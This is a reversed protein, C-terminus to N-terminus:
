KAQFHHRGDQVPYTSRPLHTDGWHVHIEKKNDRILVKDGPIYVQYKRVQSDTQLKAHRKSARAARKRANKNRGFYVDSPTQNDLERKSENNLISEYRRLNKKLNLSKKTKEDYKMKKRLTRHVREVKGQSQPHYPSSNIVTIGRDICMKKVFGQFETGNDSQLIKPDGFRNFNQALIKAM